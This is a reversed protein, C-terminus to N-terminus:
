SYDWSWEGLFALKAGFSQGRALARRHLGVIPRPMRFPSLFLLLLSARAVQCLEGGLADLEKSRESRWPEVVYEKWWQENKGPRVLFVSHVGGM